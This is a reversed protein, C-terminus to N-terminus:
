VLPMFQLKTYRLAICYQLRDKDLWCTYVTRNVLYVPINAM